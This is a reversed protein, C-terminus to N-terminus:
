CVAKVQPFCVHLSYFTVKYLMQFDNRKLKVRMKRIENNTDCNDRRPYTAVSFDYEFKTAM